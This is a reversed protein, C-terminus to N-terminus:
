FWKINKKDHCERILITQALTGTRSQWTKKSLHHREKGINIMRGRRKEYWICNCAFWIEFTHEIYINYIYKLCFKESWYSYSYLFDCLFLYLEKKNLCIICEYSISKFFLLISPSIMKNTTNSRCYHRCQM